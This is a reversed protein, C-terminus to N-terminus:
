MKLLWDHPCKQGGSAESAIWAYKVVMCAALIDGCLSWSRSCSGLVRHSVLWRANPIDKSLTWTGIDDRPPMLASITDWSADTPYPRPGLPPLM